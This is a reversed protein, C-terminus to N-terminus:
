NQIKVRISATKGVSCNAGSYTDGCLCQYRDWLGHCTGDNACSDPTCMAARSCGPTPLPPDLALGSPTHNSLSQLVGNVSMNSCFIFM